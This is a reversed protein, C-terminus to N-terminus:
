FGQSPLDRLCRDQDAGHRSADRGAFQERGLRGRGRGKFLVGLALILTSTHIRAM